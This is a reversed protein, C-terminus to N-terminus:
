GPRLALHARCRMRSVTSPEDLRWAARLLSGRLGVELRRDTAPEVSADPGALILGIVASVSGKSGVM